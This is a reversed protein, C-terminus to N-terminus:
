PGASPDGTLIHSAHHHVLVWEVGSRAFSNTALVSTVPSVLKPSNATPRAM